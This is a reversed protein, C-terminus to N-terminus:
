ENGLGLIRENYKMRWYAESDEVLEEIKKLDADEYDDPHRDMELLTVLALGLNFEEDTRDGDYPDPMEEISPTEKKLKVATRNHVVQKYAEGGILIVFFIGTIIVLLLM